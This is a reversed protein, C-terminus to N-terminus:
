DATNSTGSRDAFTGTLFKVPEVPLGGRGVVIFSSIDDTLKVACRERLIGEPSLMVDSLTVLEGSIDIDPAFINISGAVGFKSSADIVSHKDLLFVQTTVSIDGGAGNIANAAVRSNQIITHVPDITINGGDNGAEATVVSDRFRIITPATLVINGGDLHSEASLRGNYLLIRNGSRIHISGGRSAAAATTVESGGTLVVSNDASLTVNGADGTGLGSTAISSAEHMEITAASVVIDGGGGAEETSASIRAAGTMRLSPTSITIRGAPGDGFANTFIGNVDDSLEDRVIDGTGAITISERAILTIEAQTDLNDSFNNGEIASFNAMEIVRANIRITGPAGLALAAAFISSDDIAVHDAAITTTGGDGTTFSDSSIESDNIVNLRKAEIVIDGADGFNGFDEFDVIEGGDGFADSNTFDGGAGFDEFDGNGDDCGQGADPGEDLITRSGIVSQNVLLRDIATARITGGNGAGFTDSGVHSQDRIEITTAAIEISGGEGTASSSVAASIDSNEILITETADLTISGGDGDATTDTAIVSLGLIEIDTATIDVTGGDGDGCTDSAISSFDRLEVTEATIQITGGDGEGETGTAIHSVNRLELTTAAIAITGGDGTAGEIVNASMSSDDLLIAGAINLTVTGGNGAGENDTSIFSLNLLTLATSELFVDGSDGDGTSIASIFADDFTVPGDIILSVSGGDGSNESDSAFVSEHFADIRHAYVTINGGDGVGGDAANAAIEGHVLLISGDIDITITGGDGDGENITIIRSDVIELTSARIVVDGGDGDRVTSASVESADILISDSVELSVVGGNGSEFNDTSIFGNNSITLEHSTVTVNGSDGDGEAMATVSSQNIIIGEEIDIVINGGDGDGVNNTSIESNNSLTLVRGTLTIDGGDGHDAAISSITSDDVILEDFTIILAAGDGNEVADTFVEANNALVLTGIDLFISGADGTAGSSADIIGGDITMGPATIRVDGGDGAGLSDTALGTDIDDGDTDEIVISETAVIIVDGSDGSAEGSGAIFANDRILVTKAAVDFRGGDGTSTGGFMIESNAIDLHGSDIAIVGSDGDGITELTILSDIIATSTAILSVSGGNGAGLVQASIESHSHIQIADKARIVINGGTITSNDTIITTGTLTINKGELHVAGGGDGAISLSSNTVLIDRGASNALFSTGSAPVDGDGATSVLNVTGSDADIESNNVTIEGAVITVGTGPALTLAAGDVVIGAPNATLFGFSEPPAATLVTNTMLAADFRGGDGLKIQEATSVAFSGDVDIEAGPGFVVGDPNILFLNADVITSQIMGDITSPSGGTVRSLINSIANPGSFVASQNAGVNFDHFSHFLNAGVITGLDHSVHYQPGQLEVAAGVTGDTSIQGCVSLTAAWVLAVVAWPCLCRRTSTDAARTM